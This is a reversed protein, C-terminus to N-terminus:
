GDTKERQVSATCRSQESHRVPSPPLAFGPVGSAACAAFTDRSAVSQRLRRGLSNLDSKVFMPLSLLLISLTVRSPVCACHRRPSDNSGIKNADHQNEHHRKVHRCVQESSRSSRHGFGSYPEGANRAARSADAEAARKAVTGTTDPPLVPRAFSSPRDNVKPTTNRGFNM